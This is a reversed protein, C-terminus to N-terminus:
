VNISQNQNNLLLNNTPRDGLKNQKVQSQSLINTKIKNFLSEIRAHFNRQFAPNNEDYPKSYTLMKEISLDNSYKTIDDKNEPFINQLNKIFNDTSQAVNKTNKIEDYFDYACQVMEDIKKNNITNNTKNLMQFSNLFSRWQVINPKILKIQQIKFHPQFMVKQRIINEKITDENEILYNNYMAINLKNKINNLQQRNDKIKKDGQKIIKVNQTENDAQEMQPLIEKEFKRDEEEKKNINKIEKAKEKLIKDNVKNLINNVVEANKDDKKDDKDIRELEEM